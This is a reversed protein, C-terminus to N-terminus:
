GLLGDNALDRVEEAVRFRFSRVGVRLRCGPGSSFPWSRDLDQECITRLVCGHGVAHAAYDPLKKL